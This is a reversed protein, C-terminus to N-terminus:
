SLTHVEDAVEDHAYDVIIGHSGNGRVIDESSRVTELMSQTESVASVAITHSEVIQAEQNGVEDEDKGKQVDKGEEEDGGVQALKEEKEEEEQEDGDEEEDEDEEEETEEDNYLSLLAIGEAKRKGAM